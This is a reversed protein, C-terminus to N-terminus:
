HIEILAPDCFHQAADASSCESFPNSRSKDFLAKVTSSNNQLQQLQEVVTSDIHPTALLTLKSKNAVESPPANKFSNIQLFMYGYVIAVFAVFLLPLYPRIKRGAATTQEPVSKINFSINKSM